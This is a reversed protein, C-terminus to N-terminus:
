VAIVRDVSLSGIRLVASSVGSAVAVNAGVLKPPINLPLLTLM